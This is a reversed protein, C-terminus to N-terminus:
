ANAPIKVCSEPSTKTFLPAGWSMFFPHDETFLSHQQLFSCGLVSIIATEMSTHSWTRSSQELLNKTRAKNKTWKTGKWQNGQKHVQEIQQMYNIKKKGSPSLRLKLAWTSQSKPNCGKVSSFVLFIHLFVEKYTKKATRSVSWNNMNWEQKTVEKLNDLICTRTENTNM